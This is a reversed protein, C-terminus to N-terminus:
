DDGRGVEEHGLSRLLKNLGELEIRERYWTPWAAAGFELLTMLSEPLADSATLWQWLQKAERPGDLGTVEVMDAPEVTEPMLFTVPSVGLALALAMLDDVDVRRTGKEIQDVASHGLPRGVEGLKKSLSRLGLNQKTRLRKVNASVTEATADRQVANTGMNFVIRRL